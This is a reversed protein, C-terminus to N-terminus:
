IGWGELITTMQLRRGGGWQVTFTATAANALPDNLTVAIVGVPSRLSSAELRSKWQLCDGKAPEVLASCGTGSTTLNYREPFSGANVRFREVMEEAMQVAVTGDRSTTNATMATTQMSAVALLGVALITMAILVEVLSFGRQQSIECKKM